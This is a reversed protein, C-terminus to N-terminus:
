HAPTAVGKMTKTIWARTAASTLQAYLDRVQASSAKSTRVILSVTVRDAEPEALVQQRASLGGVIAQQAPVFVLDASKMAGVLKSPSRTSFVLGRPNATVDALTSGSGGISVLRQSALLRLATEMQVRDKPLVVKAGRALASVATGPRGYFADAERYIAGVTTIAQAKPPASWSSPQKAALAAAASGDAVTTYATSVDTVQLWQLSRGNGLHQLLDGGAGAFAAIPLDAGRVNAITVRPKPAPAPAATCADVGVILLSALVTAWVVHIRPIQLRM